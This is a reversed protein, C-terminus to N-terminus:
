IRVSPVSSDLANRGLTFSQKYEGRKVSHTVSKVYYLGDYTVGAGRVGVLRRAKLVGGYRLVNLQGSGSIVDASQAARVRGAAAARNSAFKGTVNLKEKRFAPPTRKGLPLNLGAIAPVLVSRSAAADEDLIDAMFESKAFGNYSFSLSEVNTHADMNSTLAPQPIGSRTEPGWYARNLGPTPGPELYFVYGENRALDNIYQLDTGRHEPTIKEPNPQDQEGTSNVDPVFGLERYKGLITEVRTQASQASYSELGTRDTMDMLRTLDEGTITLTSQGPENSPSLQQQTIVGDMLVSPTGNITVVVIVRVKPDFFGSPLLSLNLPSRRSIAFTMQFGGPEGSSVEVGTLAEIVSQPVAAPKSPGMMLTLYFGKNM